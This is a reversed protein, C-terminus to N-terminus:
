KLEVETYYQPSFVDGDEFPPKWVGDDTAHYVMEGNEYTFRIVYKEDFTQLTLHREDDWTYTGVGIYSSVPSFTFSFTGDNYLSFGCM